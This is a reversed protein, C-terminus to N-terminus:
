IKEGTIKTLPFFSISINYVQDRTDSDQLYAMLERRFKKIRKQAEKIKKSDIAMTINSQDRLEMPIEDMAIMAKELFQKQLKRFAFVKSGKGDTLASFSDVAKKYKEQVQHILQLRELRELAIKIELESVGLRKAMWKHDSKFGKTGVLEFIAYHIWDSIIEYQDEELSKFYQTKLAEKMENLSYSFLISKYKQFDNTNLNLASATKNFFEESIARKGNLVRSLISPSVGMQKAYARLSYNPNKRCRTILEQQLLKRYDLRGLTNNADM